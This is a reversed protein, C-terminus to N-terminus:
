TRTIKGTRVSGGVFSKLSEKPLHQRVQRRVRRAIKVAVRAEALPIVEYDGPYRTVTAYRSLLHQEEPTLDPWARAPLIALLARLDHTKPFDRGHNVLLAKVYKEVCQQAHFCVIDAPCRKGLKLLQVAATLDNEAKLVWERIVRIVEYDAALM